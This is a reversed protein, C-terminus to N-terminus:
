MAASLKKLHVLDRIDIRGDANVDFSGDLSVRLLAQRLLLLDLANVGGSSNLDGTGARESDVSIYFPLLAILEDYENRIYLNCDNNMEYQAYSVGAAGAADIILESGSIVATVSGTSGDSFHLILGNPEGDATLGCGIATLRVHLKNEGDYYAVAPCASAYTLREGYVAGLAAVAAREGVPQKTIPHIAGTASNYATSIDYIAVSVATGQEALRNTADAIAQNCQVLFDGDYQPYPALQIAIFPLTGAPSFLRSISDAVVPIGQRLVEPQGALGENEGQYWVIGAARLGRFPAVNMRYYTALESVKDAAAYGGAELAACFEPYEAATDPDIHRCLDTGGVSVDLVGVPVDLQENLKVAFHYAVASFRSLEDDRSDDFWYGAPEAPTNKMMANSVATYMRVRGSRARSLTDSYELTASLALEMNSQGDCVWLEGFVINSLSITQGGCSASIRYSAYGGEVPPLCARWAGDADASVTQGFVVAGDAERTLELQVESGAPAFGHVTNEARQQLLMDNGFASNFRFFDPDIPTVSWDYITWNNAGSVISVYGGSYNEPLQCHWPTEYGDAYISALGGCVRLTVTHTGTKEYTVGNQGSYFTNSAAIYGSSKVGPWNGLFTPAGEQTLFIGYGGDAGDLCFGDPTSAGFNLILWRANTGKRFTIKIEFNEYTGKKYTLMAMYNKWQSATVTDNNIRQLAGGSVSWKEAADIPSFGTYGAATSDAIEAYYSSFLELDSESDFSVTDASGTQAASLNEVTMSLVRNSNEGSIIGIYGGVYTDPLPSTLPDCGDVSVAATGNEVRLTLTHVATKDFNKLPRRIFGQDNQKSLRNPADTEVCAALNLRGDKESFAAFGGGPETFISTTSEAGFNVAVWRSNSGYCYEITVEFDIYRKKLSLLSYYNKWQYTSVCRGHNIRTIEGNELRWHESFDCVELPTYGEVAPDNFDAYSCIFDQMEASDSFAYSLLTDDTESSVAPCVTILIVAATLVALFRQLM